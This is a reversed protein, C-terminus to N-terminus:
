IAYVRGNHTGVLIQFMKVSASGTLISREM